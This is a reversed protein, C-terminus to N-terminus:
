ILMGHRRSDDKFMSNLVQIEAEEMSQIKVEVFQTTSHLGM